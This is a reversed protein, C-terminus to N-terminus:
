SESDELCRWKYYTIAICVPLEASFRWMGVFFMVDSFWTFNIVEFLFNAPVFSLLIQKQLFEKRRPNCHFSTDASPVPSLATLGLQDGWFPGSAKKTQKNEKSLLVLPEVWGGRGQAIFRQVGDTGDSTHFDCICGCSRKEMCVTWAPQLLLSKQSM